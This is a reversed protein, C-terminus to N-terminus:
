TSTELLTAKWWDWALNVLGQEGDSLRHVQIGENILHTLAHHVRGHCNGCLPVLDPRIPVDLLSCLFKPFTHHRQSWQPDPAHYSAGSCLEWDKSM